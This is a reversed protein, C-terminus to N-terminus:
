LGIQKKLSNCIDTAKSIILKQEHLMLVLWAWSYDLTVGYCETDKFKRHPLIQTEDIKFDACLQALLVGLSDIQALTPIEISFDGALCVGISSTNEGITHAGEESDARAQRIAGSKEILYHYGVYYGLSSLPFEREKHWGNVLYFQDGQETSATHHVIIKNPVNEM